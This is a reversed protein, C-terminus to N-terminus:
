DRHTASYYLVGFATRGDRLDDTLVRERLTSMTTTDVRITEDDDLAQDGSPTCDQALFYHHVTDAVGNAPEVTTLPEVTDADYGTEEALERRAAAHLDDDSPEVTGAPFGLNVRRVAERWEHVVVVENEPTRPIIVVSPPESLYDFSTEAGTPLRVREHIVDFGSCSYALQRDRVEWGLEGESM